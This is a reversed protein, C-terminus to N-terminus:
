FMSRSPLARAHRRTGGEAPPQAREPEDATEALNLDRGATGAGAAVNVNTEVTIDNNAQLTLNAGNMAAVVTAESLESTGAANDAFADHDTIPTAAGAATIRINKPDLLLTGTHTPVRVM